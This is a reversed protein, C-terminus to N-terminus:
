YGLLRRLAEDTRLRREFDAAVKAARELNPIRMLIEALSNLQSALAPPITPPANSALTSISDQLSMHDPPILPQFVGTLDSLM